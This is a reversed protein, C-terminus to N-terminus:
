RAWTRSDRAVTFVREVQEASMRPTRGSLRRDAEKGDLLLVPALESTVTISAAGLVAIVPQVPVQFGCRGSLLRSVRAGERQSIPVYQTSARNVTVAHDGQWVAAGRHHKTNVVFVGPLGIVLHDIDAGGSPPQVSHLVKWGDRRLRDLRGGVLREGRLGVAWSHASTTERSLWYAFRRKWWSPEEEAIKRRLADGPKNLALDLSGGEAASPPEPMAQPPTKVEPTLGALRPTLVRVVAARDREDPVEIRGTAFDYWGVTQEAGQRNVYLRDHGYRRWRRVTFEGDMGVGSAVIM